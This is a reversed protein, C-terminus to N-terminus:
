SPSYKTLLRLFDPSAAWGRTPPLGHAPRIEAYLALLAEIQSIVNDAQKNTQKALRSIALSLKHYMLYVVVYLGGVLLVGSLVIIELSM